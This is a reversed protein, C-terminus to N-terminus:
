AAIELEQMEFNQIKDIFKNACDQIKTGLDIVVKPDGNAWGAIYNFSCLSTDLGFHDAVIFAISEVFVESLGRDTKYDFDDYYRHALEHLLVSAKDNMSLNKKIVIRKKKESYYGKGAGYLDEELVPVDSLKKLKEYFYGMDDKNIDQCKLPIPEGVTQSIDYVYVYRYSNYEFTEVKEIEEGDEIKIVKKNYKRPIPAIISIRQAGKIPERKMELWKAKGGVVTADPFQSFILILNNFSYRKFNNRFKKRFRLFKEYEGNNVIDQLNSVIKDFMEKTKNINSKSYNKMDIGGEKVCKKGM